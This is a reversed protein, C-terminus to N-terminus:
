AHTKTIGETHQVFFDVGDTDLIFYGLNEIAGPLLEKDSGFGVRVLFQRIINGHSVILINKGPFAVASERIFRVFREFIEEDSELEGGLRHKRREEMLMGEYEQVLTQYAKNFDDYTYGEYKGFSRERLLQTTKVVIQRDKAVLQATHHARLLDSAFVDAFEIDKFDTSRKVAQEIGRDTLKSNTQGGLIRAVNDETEGHRVVYFRCYPSQLIPLKM